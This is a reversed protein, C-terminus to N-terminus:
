NKTLLATHKAPPILKYDPSNRGPAVLSIATNGDPPSVAVWRNVGDYNDDVVLSFGLQDIFFRLSKDQDRVYVNVCLIRLYPDDRDLRPDDLRVRKGRSSSSM